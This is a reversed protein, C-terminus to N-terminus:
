GATFYLLLLDMKVYFSKLLRFHFLWFFLCFFPSIGEHKGWSVQARNERGSPLGLPENMTEGMWENEWEIFVTVELALFWASCISTYPREEWHARLWPSFLCHLDTNYLGVSLFPFVSSSQPILKLSLSHHKKLTWAGARHGRAPGKQTDRLFHGM